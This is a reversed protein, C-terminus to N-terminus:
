IRKRAGIYRGKRLYRLTRARTAIRMYKNHRDETVATDNTAEELLEGWTAQLEKLRNHMVPPFGTRFSDDAALTMCDTKHHEFM